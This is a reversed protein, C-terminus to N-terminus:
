WQSWDLVSSKRSRGRPMAATSFWTWLFYDLHYFVRFKSSKERGCYFVIQKKKGCLISSDLFAVVFVCSGMVDRRSAATLAELHFKHTSFLKGKLCMVIVHKLTQQPQFNGTRRHPIHSYVLPLCLSTSRVWNHISEVLSEEPHCCFFVWRPLRGENRVCRAKPRCTEGSSGPFMLKPIIWSNKSCDFLSLWHGELLVEM